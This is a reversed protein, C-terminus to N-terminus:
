LMLRRKLVPKLKKRSESMRYKITGEPIGTIESIDKYKLEEYFHLFVMERDVSDLESVAQRILDREVSKMQLIEPSYTDTFELGSLSEGSVRKKRMLDIVFYRALSYIWTSFAYSSNYTHIKEFTKLLIESVVDTVDEDGQYLNLIYVQLRSHYLTWIEQFLSEKSTLGFKWLLFTRKIKEM